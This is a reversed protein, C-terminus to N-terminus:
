LLVLLLTMTSGAREAEVRVSVNQKKFSFDSSHRQNIDLVLVSYCISYFGLAPNVWLRVLRASLAGVQLPAGLLVPRFNLYNYMEFLVFLLLLPLHM